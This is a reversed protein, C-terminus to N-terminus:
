VHRDISVIMPRHVHDPSTKFCHEVQATRVARGLQALIETKRAPVHGTDPGVQRTMEHRETVSPLVYM